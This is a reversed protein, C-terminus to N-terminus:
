ARKSIAASEAYRLRSPWLAIDIELPGAFHELVGPPVRAMGTTWRHEGESAHFGNWLEAHAAVLDLTLDADRFTIKRLSVGLRRSDRSAPDMEAPVASRSALWVAGTPRGIAFRYVGDGVARPPVAVADVILHLGPDSTMAHGLALARALLRKRLSMLAADGEELRPACIPEIAPLVGPYRRTYEAANHFMARNDCEAYTEASAHEALIVDHRDLEIHFYEVREVTAPQTVTLGNVLLKAPVLRRDLYLAHEPSVWLDRAPVGDAFAGALVVVPLATRKGAIFRGNYSRRGIWRIPKAEGSLTVVNDGIALAEVPVEGRETRILTGRCYCPTADETIDTGGTGDDTLHFYDNTFDQSPNLQLDYTQGGETIQLENGGNLTVQGAGSTYGIGTLDITDGSVFGHITAGILKTPDNPLSAGDILLQGGTGSFTVTGKVIGGSVELTGSQAITTHSASGGSLIVATGGSSITTSLASGGSYVVEAGGGKVTTDIASGGSLVWVVGGNSVTTDSATGGQIVEQGTNRVITGSAVGSALIQIEGNHNVITGTASGGSSVVVQGGGGAFTAGSLVGGLLVSVVGANHASGSLVTGIATGGSLIQAGLALIVASVASGGSYVVQDGVIGNTIDGSVTTGSATGGSSIYEDGGPEISTGSALGGDFVTEVGGNNVTIDLAMGGSSISESGGNKVTTGSAVGSFFVTELGGNGVTASIATGGSSINEAGSNKITTDSAVGSAFVTEVGGKSITASLAIGGSSVNEVGSNSLVDGSTVGGSVVNVTGGKTVTFSSGPLGSLNSNVTSTVGNGVTPM